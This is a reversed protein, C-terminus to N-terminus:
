SGEVVAIDFVVEGDGDGDLDGVTPQPYYQWAFAQSTWEVAGSASVAVVQRSTNSAIVEPAGDNDVDAIAVGANGDYGTREWIVGAGDGHLAVLKNESWTTFVIDPDDDEDIVGDGNDDTLNGIAPMVIVGNGSSVTYQWEIAVNWPDLVEIDPALCDEDVTVSGPAPEDVDCDDDVCDAIGDGDTDPWGEDIEGDGDDDVGNCEEDPDPTDPGTDDGEDPVGTDDGEDEPDKEGHLNYDTCASLGLLALALARRM